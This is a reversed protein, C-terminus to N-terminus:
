LAADMQYRMEEFTPQRVAPRSVTAADVSEVAPTRRAWGRFMARWNTLPLGDRGVWGEREYHEFFEDALDMRRLHNAFICVDKLSPPFGRVNSTTEETQKNTQKNQDSVPTLKESMPTLIVSVPTLPVSMPSMDGTDTPSVRTDTDSMPSMDSTDTPGVIMGQKKANSIARYVMRETVGLTTALRKRSAMPYAIAAAVILKDGVSLSSQLLADTITVSIM